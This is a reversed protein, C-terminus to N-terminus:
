LMSVSDCMYTHVHMCVRVTYTRALLMGSCTVHVCTHKCVPVYNYVIACM